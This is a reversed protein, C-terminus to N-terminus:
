DGTSGFGHAGRESDPLTDTEIFRLVTLPLPILQAVREGRKVMVDSSTINYCLSFIDGRFGSDIVSQPVIIGRKHLTSSRGCILFWLDPPPALRVRSPVSSWKGAPILTDDSVFLDLGIDGHKAQRPLPLDRVDADRNIHAIVADDSTAMLTRELAALADPLTHYLGGTALSILMSHRSWAFDPTYVVAPISASRAVQLEMPVGVSTGDMVAFVVAAHRLATENVALLAERHQVAHGDPVHWAAHPSYFDFGKARLREIFGVWSADRQKPETGDIPGACYVYGNM